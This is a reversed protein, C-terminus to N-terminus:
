RAGGEILVADTFSSLLALRPHFREVAWRVVKSAPQTEFSRSLRALEDAQELQLAPGAM